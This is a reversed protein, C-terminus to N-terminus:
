GVSVNVTQTKLSCLQTVRSKDQPLQLFVYILAVTLILLWSLFVKQGGVIPHLNTLTTISLINSKYKYQVANRLLMYIWNSHTYLWYGAPCEDISLLTIFAIVGTIEVYNLSWKHWDWAFYCSRLFFVLVRGFYIPNPDSFLGCSWFHSKQLMFGLSHRLGTALAAAHCYHDAPVEHGFVTTVRMKEGDRGDKVYGKMWGGM